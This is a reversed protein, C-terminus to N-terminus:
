AVARDKMHPAYRLDSGKIHKELWDKLFSLLQITITVRGANFDDQFKAVQKTLGDHEAKHAATDPYDHLRMLREEHAFHVATYQVLRDLIRTLSAKGQGAMMASHLERALAFLNQHQGDVSGIGVSYTNSWEFMDEKDASM